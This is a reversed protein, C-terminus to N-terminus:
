WCAASIVYLRSRLQHGRSSCPGLLHAPLPNSVAETELLPLLHPIDLLVQMWERLPGPRLLPWALSLQALASLIAGAIIKWRVAILFVIAVALEWNPSSSSVDSHSAPWSSANRV